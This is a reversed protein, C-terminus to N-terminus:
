ECIASGHNWVGSQGGERHERVREDIYCFSVRVSIHAAHVSRSFDDSIYSWIPEDLM